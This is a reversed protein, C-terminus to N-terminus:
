WQLLGMLRVKMRGIKTVANAASDGTPAARAVGLGPSGLPGAGRGTMSTALGPEPTNQLPPEHQISLPSQASYM